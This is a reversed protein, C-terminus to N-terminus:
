NTNTRVLTVFYYIVTLPVLIVAFGVGTLNAHTCKYMIWEPAEDTDPYITSNPHWAPFKIQIRHALHKLNTVWLGKQPMQRYSVCGKTALRVFCDKLFNNEKSLAHREQPLQAPKLDSEKCTIPVYFLAMRWTIRVDICLFHDSIKRSCLVLLLHLYSGRSAHEGWQWFSPSLDIGM